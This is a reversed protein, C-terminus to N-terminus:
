RAATYESLIGKEVRREVQRFGAGNLAAVIVAPPVCADITKWYYEMLRQPDRGGRWRALVPVVRGLHFGLLRRALRGEPRTIELLLLKGGPRLVRRFEAFTARLDAVHRLAYGMSLLDFAADPFPLREGIARVLQRVGRLRARQLMGLSPDLGVVRRGPAALDQAHAALVGTGCGVDLAGQGAHFGTRGLV